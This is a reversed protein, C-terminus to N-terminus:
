SNGHPLGSFKFINIEPLFKYIHCLPLPGEGVVEVLYIWHVAVM